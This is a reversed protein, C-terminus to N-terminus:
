IVLLPLAEPAARALRQDSTVLSAGLSEALAVYLADYFTLNDILQWARAALPGAHLHRHTVSREALRRARDAVHAEINRRVVMRRLM